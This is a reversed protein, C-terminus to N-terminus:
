PTAAPVARVRYFRQAVGPEPTFTFTTAYSPWQSAPPVPIWTALDESCEVTFKWYYGYGPWTMTMSGDGNLVTATQAAAAVFPQLLTTISSGAAGGWLGAADVAQVTVQYSTSPRLGTILKQAATPPLNFILVHDNYPGYHFRRRPQRHAAVVRYAAIGYNDTAPSWAIRCSDFSVQDVVVSAPASPPILDTGAPYVQVTRTFNASGAVSAANVTFTQAGEQGAAPTWTFYGSSGSVSHWVAGAPSAGPTLAPLPNGTATFVNGTWPESVIARLGQFTGSQDAYIAPPCQLTFTVAAKASLNGAADIAGVYYTRTSCAPLNAFHWSTGAPTGLTAYYTTRHYRNGSTRKEMVRYGTVAINDTSGTWSIDASNTTINFAALNTPATPPTLDPPVGLVTFTILQDAAGASNSARALATQTGVQAASPTWAVAGTAANVSLGAPGRVISFTPAPKGSAALTDTWENGISLTSTGTPTSTIRPARTTAARTDIMEISTAGGASNAGFYHSFGDSSLAAPLGTHDDTTRGLASSTSTAPNFAYVTTGSVLYIFGDAGLTAPGGMAAPSDALQTWANGAISYAWVDAGGFVIIRGAGDYSAASCVVGPPPAALTSWVGNGSAGADYRYVLTPSINYLRGLNDRASVGLANGTPMDTMGNDVGGAITFTVAINTGQGREETGGWICIRGRGDLAAGAPQNQGNDLDGRFIFAAGPTAYNWTVAPTNDNSLPYGGFLYFTGALEAVRVGSMGNFYGTQEARISSILPLAANAVAIQATREGSQIGHPDTVRVRVTHTGVSTFTHAISAGSARGAFDEWVAGDGDWDVSVTFLDGTAAPYSGFAGFALNVAAGLTTTAPLTVYNLVPATQLGVTFTGIVGGPHVNGALDSVQNAALRIEYTGNDAGDWSGGPAPVTFTVTMQQADTSFWSNATGPMDYFNPGSIRITGFSHTTNTVVKENDWFKVTVTTSTAGAGPQTATAAAVPALTDLGDFREAIFAHTEGGVTGFGAIDGGANIGHAGALLWGSLPSILENLDRLAGSGGYYIARAVGAADESAGVVLGSDNLAYARSEVGGALGGLDKIGGADTFVFARTANGANVSYGAVDGAANIAAAFSDNAGLTGLSVLAGAADTRFARTGGGVWSAVGVVQGAANIGYAASTAPPTAGTLPPLSTFSSLSLTFASVPVAATGTYGAIVGSANVAQPFWGETGSAPGLDTGVGNEWRMAHALGAADTAYGFVRGDAGVALARAESGGLGPLETMLNNAFVWAKATTATPQAYGCVIGDDNIATAYTPAGNLSGLDTVSYTQAYLSTIAALAAAFTSLLFNKM